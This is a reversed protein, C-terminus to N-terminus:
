EVKQKKAPEESSSSAEDDLVEDEWEIEFTNIMPDDVLRMEILKKDIKYGAYHIIDEDEEGESVAEGVTKNLERNIESYSDSGVREGDEEDKGESEFVREKGDQAGDEVAEMFTRQGPGDEDGSEDEGDDSGDDEDESGTEEESGGTGSETDEDENGIEESLEEVDNGVLEEAPIGPYGVDVIYGIRVFQQGKYRGVIIISTLGFLQDLPIRDVDPADADISFEVRGQPIPAVEIEALVQDNEDSHVDMNYLVAFEVGDKIEKSCVLRMNFRLPEMLKKKLGDVEISKFKLRGM